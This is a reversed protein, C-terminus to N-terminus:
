SKVLPMLMRLGWTRRGHVNGGGDREGDGIDLAMRRWVSQPVVKWLMRVPALLAHAKAAQVSETYCSQVLGDVVITGSETHPNFLGTGRVRYRLEVVRGETGDARQLRDGVRVDAARKLTPAYTYHGPTLTVSSGDDATITMFDDYVVDHVRHSFGLVTSYSHTMNSTTSTRSLISSHAVQVVDGFEVSGMPKTTGDILHVSASSPFCVDDDDDEVAPSSMAGDMASSHSPSPTMAPTPSLFGPQVGGTETTDGGGVPNTEPAVNSAEDAPPECGPADNTSSSDGPNSLNRRRLSTTDSSNVSWICCPDGLEQGNTLGDGDSDAECLEKTWELGATLFDEGFDNNSHNIRAM